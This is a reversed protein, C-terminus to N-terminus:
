EEPTIDEINKSIRYVAPMISQHDRIRGVSMGNLKIITHTKTSTLDIIIPIIVNGTLKATM